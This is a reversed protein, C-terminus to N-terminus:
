IARRYTGIDLDWEAIAGLVEKDPVETRPDMAKILLNHLNNERMSCGQDALQGWAELVKEKGFQAVILGAPGSTYKDVHNSMKFKYSAINPDLDLEPDREWETEQEATIPKGRLSEVKDLLLGFRPDRAECYRRFSTNWDKWNQAGGSYIKPEAVDKINLSKLPGLRSTSRITALQTGVQASSGAVLGQAWHDLM